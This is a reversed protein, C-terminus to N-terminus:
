SHPKHKTKMKRKRCAFIAMKISIGKLQKVGLVDVDVSPGLFTFDISFDLTLISSSPQVLQHVYTTNAVINKSVQTLLSKETVWLCVSAYKDLNVSHLSEPQETSQV